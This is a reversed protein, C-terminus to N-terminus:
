APSLSSSASKAVTVGFETTIRNIPTKSAYATAKAQAEVHYSADVNSIEKAPIQEKKIRENFYKSSLAEIVQEKPTIGAILLAAIFLALFPHLGSGSFAASSPPWASSSCYFRIWPRLSTCRTSKDM